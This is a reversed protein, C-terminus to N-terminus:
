VTAMFAVSRAPLTFLETDICNVAAGCDELLKLEEPLSVM